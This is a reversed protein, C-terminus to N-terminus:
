KFLPVMVTAEYYITKNLLLGGAQYQKGGKTQYAMAVKAGSLFTTQNGIVGAGALLKGRPKGAALATKLLASQRNFDARLSDSYAVEKEIVSDRLLVEYNLLEVAEDVEKRYQDVQNALTAAQVALESCGATDYVTTTGPRNLVQASLRRVIGQTETLKRDAAKKDAIAAATEQRQKELQDKEAVREKNRAISDRAVKEQLAKNEAQLNRYQQSIKKNGCPGFFVLIAVIVAVGIIIQGSYKLYKDM